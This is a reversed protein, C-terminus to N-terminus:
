TRAREYLALVQAAAEAVSTVKVDRREPKLAAGAIADVEPAVVVDAYHALAGEDVGIVRAGCMRAQAAVRASFDNGLGLIWVEDLAQVWRYFDQTPVYGTFTVADKLGLSLVRARIEPEGVGNSTLMLHADPRRERLK